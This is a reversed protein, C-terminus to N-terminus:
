RRRSSRGFCASIAITFFLLMQSTPEPVSLTREVPKAAESGFFSSFLLFDAFQVVGDCTFDGETWNGEKQFNSSLTLFDAFRVGGDFDTDGVLSKNDFAFENTDRDDIEGDQNYDFALDGTRIGACILNQDLEDFELDRNYDGLLPFQAIQVDDLRAGDRGHFALLFWDEPSLGAGSLDIPSDLLEQEFSGDNDGDIQLNSLASADMDYGLRLGIRTDNIPVVANEEFLIEVGDPTGGTGLSFDAGTGALLSGGGIGIWVANDLDNDNGFSVYTHTGAATQYRMDFSFSVAGDIEFVEPFFLDVQGVGGGVEGYVDVEDADGWSNTGEGPLFTTSFDFDGSNVWDIESLNYSGSVQALASLSGLSSSFLLAAFVVWNGIPTAISNWEAFVQGVKYHVTM